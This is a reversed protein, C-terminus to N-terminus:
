LYMIIRESGDSLVAVLVERTDIDEVGPIVRVEFRHVLV